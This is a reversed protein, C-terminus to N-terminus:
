PKNPTVKVAYNANPMDLAFAGCFQGDGSRFANELKAIRAAQQRIVANLSAVRNIDNRAFDANIANTQDNMVRVQITNLTFIKWNFYM